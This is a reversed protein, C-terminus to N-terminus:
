GRLLKAYQDPYKDRFKGRETYTMQSLTKLDVEDVSITRKGGGAPVSASSVRRQTNSELRKMQEPTLGGNAKPDPELNGTKTPEKGHDPHLAGIEYAIIAANYEDVGLQDANAAAVQLDRILKVIKTQKWKEPFFTEINQMVDKARSITTDFDPYLSRVYEEQDVQAKSVVQTKAANEQQLRTYNEAEARQLERLQKLTLPKDEPDIPKGDEDVNPEPVQAPHELTKVRLELERTKNEAAQRAQRENKMRFYMARPATGTGFTELFFKEQVPTMTFDPLTNKAQPEIKKNESPKIGPNAADEEPLPKVDSKPVAVVKPKESIGLKEASDMEKVSWGKAHLEDRTPKKIEASATKDEAVEITDAM